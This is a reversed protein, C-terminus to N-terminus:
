STAPYLPLMLDFRTHSGDALTITGGFSEVIGKSVSLGLGTGEGPPKTTFFPLFVKSRIPEEIGPGSDIVSLQVRGPVGDVRVQVWRVPLDKVAHLSNNFLNLLVQSLAVGNCLVPEPLDGVVEVRVGHSKFREGCISLADEIVDRILHSELPLSDPERSFRRLAQVIRTVRHTTERIQGIHRDVEELDTNGKKILMQILDAYGKIITLPNNIEHALGAAMEGLAVLKAGQIMSTQAAHIESVDQIQVMFYKIQGSDGRVPSVLTHAWIVRGDKSTYRKEVKVRDTKGELVDVRHRQTLERDEPHTLDLVGKQLIELESYGFLRLFAPNVKLYCGEASVLAIPFAALDWLFEIDRTSASM